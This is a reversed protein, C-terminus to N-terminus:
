SRAVLVVGATILLTGILRQFGVPENLFLYGLILTFIFGLGVFPYAQTVDLRALVALWLVAGLGYLTLGTIVTPNILVNMAVRLLGDAAMDVQVAKSSMASKLVIQAIASLAVSLLILSWITYPQRAPM